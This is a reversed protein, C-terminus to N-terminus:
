HHMNSFSTEIRLIHLTQTMDWSGYVSEKLNVVFLIEPGDKSNGHRKFNGSESLTTAALLSCQEM